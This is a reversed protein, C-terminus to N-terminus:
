LVFYYLYLCLVSPLYILACFMVPGHITHITFLILVLLTLVLNFCIKLLYLCLVSPWYILACLLILVLITRITLLILIFCFLYTSLVSPLYKLVCFLELFILKFFYNWYMSHFACIIIIQLVLFYWYSSIVSPLYIVTWFLLLVLITCIYTIQLVFCYILSMDSKCRYRSDSYCRPRYWRKKKNFLKADHCNEKNECSILHFTILKLSSFFPYRM